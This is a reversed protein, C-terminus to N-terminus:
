TASTPEGGSSFQSPGSFSRGSLGRSAVSRQGSPVQSSPANRVPFNVSFSSSALHVAVANTGAGKDLCRTTATGAFVYAGSAVCVGVQCYFRVRLACCNGGAEAQSTRDDAIHRSSTRELIVLELLEIRAHVRTRGPNTADSSRPHASRFTTSTAGYLAVGNRGHGWIRKLM